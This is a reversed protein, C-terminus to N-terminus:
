FLLFVLFPLAYKLNLKLKLIKIANSVQKKVTKDSKGLKEAIEAYSLGEYRSLVFIEKMKSPLLDIEHQLLQDLEKYQLWEELVQRAQNAPAYFSQLYAESRMLRKLRKFANNRAM